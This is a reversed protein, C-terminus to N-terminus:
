ASPSVTVGTACSKSAASESIRAKSLLAARAIVPKREYRYGKSVFVHARIWNPDEAGFQRTLESDLQGSQTRLRVSGLSNPTSSVRTLESDSM